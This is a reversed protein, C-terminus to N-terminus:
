DRHKRIDMWGVWATMILGFVMFFILSLIGSVGQIIMFITLAFALLILTTSIGALTRESM